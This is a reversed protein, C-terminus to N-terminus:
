PTARCKGEQVMRILLGDQIPMAKTAGFCDVNSELVVRLKERDGYHRIKALWPPSDVAITQERKYPSRLGYFDYVIRDPNRLTFMIHKKIPGDARIHIEVGNERREASIAQLITAPHGSLKNESSSVAAVMPKHAPEQRAPEPLVLAIQEPTMKDILIDKNHKANADGQLAALYWWKYAQVYDRPVGRGNAYMAGLNHQADVFGQEAAKIFWGLAEKYDPRIGDGYYYMLGLNNQAVAHGQEAAKTYWKFAEKYDKTVGKGDYYMLGLNYQAEAFGQEAAKTYWKLAEKYDQPVGNGNYYMLGLSYQALSYKQEAAKTYWAFAEKYDQTVGRGLAYMSGLGAQAEADGAVARQYNEKLLEAYDGALLGAPTILILVAIAAYILGKKM